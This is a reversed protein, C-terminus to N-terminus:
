IRAVYTLAFSIMCEAGFESGPDQYFRLDTVGAKRIGPLNFPTAGARALAAVAAVIASAADRAGKLDGGGRVAYASCRVSAAEDRSRGAALAFEQTSEASEARVDDFPDDVGVALFDGSDNTMPFGDSVFVDPPLTAPAQAIIADIVDPIRTEAM